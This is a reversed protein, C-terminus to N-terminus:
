VVVRLSSPAAEFRQPTKAVVDGDVQLDLCPNTRIEATKVSWHSILQSADLRPEFEGIKLKDLGMMKGALQAIGEINAKKLFFVDLKGDDVDVEPSLTLRGVGVTGANAM